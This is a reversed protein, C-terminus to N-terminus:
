KNRRAIALVRDLDARGLEGTVILLVLYTLGALAAGVLGFLAGQQPLVRCVAFAAATAAIVRV